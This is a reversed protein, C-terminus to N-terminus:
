DYSERKSKEQNLIDRNAEIYEKTLDGVNTDSKKDKKNVVFPTSLIKHMSEASNCAGCESITEDILHFVSSTIHCVACQYLYRPM